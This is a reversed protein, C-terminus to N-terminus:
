AAAEVGKAKAAKAKARARRKRAAERAKYAEAKAAYHASAREGLAAGEAIMKRKAAELDARIFGSPANPAESTSLKVLPPLIKAVVWRYMTATDIGLEAAAKKPRVFEIAARM